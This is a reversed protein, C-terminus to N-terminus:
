AADQETTTCPVPLVPCLFLPPIVHRLRVLHHRALLIAGLTVAEPQVLEEALAARLSASEGCVAEDACRERALQHTLSLSVDDQYEIPAIRRGTGTASLRMKLEEGHIVDFAASLLVDLLDAEIQHAPKALIAEWFSESHEAVVAVERV